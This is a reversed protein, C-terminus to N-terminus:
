RKSKEGYFTMNIKKSDEANQLYRDIIIEDYEKEAAELEEDTDYDAPCPLGPKKRCNGDLTEHKCNCYCM